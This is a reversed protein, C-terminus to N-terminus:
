RQHVCFVHIAALSAAVELPVLGRVPQLCVFSDVHPKHRRHVSHGSLLLGGRADAVVTVPRDKFINLKVSTERKNHGAPRPSPEVGAEGADVERAPAPAHLLVGPAAAVPQPHVQLVAMHVAGGTLVIHVVRLEQGDALLVLVLVTPVKSEAGPEHVPGRAGLLHVKQSLIGPSEAETPVRGRPEPSQDVQPVGAEHAANHLHSKYCLFSDCCWSLFTYELHQYM